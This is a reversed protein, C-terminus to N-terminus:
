IGLHRVILFLVEEQKVVHVQHLNQIVLYQVLDQRHIAGRVVEVGWVVVLVEEVPVNPLFMQQASCCVHRLLLM